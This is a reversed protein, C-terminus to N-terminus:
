LETKQQQRSSDDVVDKEEWLDGGDWKQQEALMKEYEAELRELEEIDGKHRRNLLQHLADVQAEVRKAEERTMGKSLGAPDLTFFRRVEEDVDMTDPVGPGKVGNGDLESTLFGILATLNALASDRDFDLVSHIKDMHAEGKMMKAKVEQGDAEGGFVKDHGAIYKKLTAMKDDDVILEGRAIRDMLEPYGKNALEHLLHELDSSVKDDNLSSQSPSHVGARNLTDELLIDEDSLFESKSMTAACVGVLVVFLLVARTM